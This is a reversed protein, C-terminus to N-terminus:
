IGAFPLPLLYVGAAAATLFPGFRIEQQLRMEGKGALMATAAALLGGVSAVLILFPLAWVGSWLGAAAILKVDGGGLGEQGRLVRYGKAIIYFTGGGVAGGILAEVLPPGYGLGAAVVGGAMLPFTIADPLYGTEADIFALALLGFLWFAAFGLHPGLGFRLMCALVILGGLVEVALHRWGIAAGCDRCRGRLILWSLVPILDHARIKHGCSECQSEPYALGTPKGGGITLGWARPGRSVLVNTFSGLLIGVIIGLFIYFVTNTTM